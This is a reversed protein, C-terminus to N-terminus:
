FSSTTPDKNKLELEPVTCYQAGRPGGIKEKDTSELTRNTTRSSEM